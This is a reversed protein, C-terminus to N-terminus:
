RITAFINNSITLNPSGGGRTLDIGTQQLLAQVVPRIKRGKRYAKYNADNEVRAIAIILANTLCNEEVNVEVICSKLHSIVSLPRGRSKLAARGFDVPMKDSHVTVVLTDLANFKANSHSVKEFVSWIVEGSLQYKRRFSIGIPKDNQNVQNQITIGVRDDDSVDQLAYEFLENVSTLFHGV